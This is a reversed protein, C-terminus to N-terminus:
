YRWNLKVLKKEREAIEVDLLCYIQGGLTRGQFSHLGFRDVVFVRSRKM